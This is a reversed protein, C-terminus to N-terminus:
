SEVNMPMSDPLERAIKVLSLFVLSLSDTNARFQHLSRVEERHRCVAPGPVLKSTERRKRSRKFTVRNM